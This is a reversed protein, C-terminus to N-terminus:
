KFESAVGATLRRIPRIEYKGKEYAIYYVVATECNYDYDETPSKFNFCTLHDDGSPSEKIFPAYIIKHANAELQEQTDLEGNLMPSTGKEVKFNILKPVLIDEAKFQDGYANAIVSKIAQMKNLDPYTGKKIHYKKLPEASTGFHGTRYIDNVINAFNIADEKAKRAITQHHLDVYYFGGASVMITIIVIVVLMELVTFGGQSIQKM